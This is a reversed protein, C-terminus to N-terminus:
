PKKGLGLDALKISGKPIKAKYEKPRSARGQTKSEAEEKAWKHRNLRYEAVLAELDTNTIDLPDANFLEDLSKPDAQKLPSEQIQDNSM